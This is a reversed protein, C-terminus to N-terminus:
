QNSSGTCLSNWNPYSSPQGAAGGSINRSVYNVNTWGDSSQVEASWGWPVVVLPVFIAGAPSPKYMLFMQFSENVIYDTYLSSIPQVKPSDKTASATSYPDTTDLGGSCSLISTGNATASASIVLQDWEYSGSYNPDPTVTFTMGATNSGCGGYHLSLSSTPACANDVVIASTNQQGVGIVPNPQLATYTTSAQVPSGGATASVTITVNSAAPLYFTISQSNTTVGTAYGGSTSETFGGVWAGGSISWSPNTVAGNQTKLNLVSLSIQQGVTVTQPVNTINYMGQFIGIAPAVNVTRQAPPAVRTQLTITHARIAANGAVTYSVNVQGDSAYSVFNITVDSDGTVTPTPTESWATLATGYIELYSSDGQYITNSHTAYDLIGTIVPPPPIISYTTGNNGFYGQLCSCFATGVGSSAYNGLVGDTLASVSSSFGAEGSSALLTFNSDYLNAYAMYVSHACSCLTSADITSTYGYVTTADFSVSGDNYVSFLFAEDCQAALSAAGLLLATITFGLLRLRRM